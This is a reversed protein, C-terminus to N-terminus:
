RKRGIGFTLGVVGTPRANGDLVLAGTARAELGGLRVAPTIASVGLAAGEQTVGLAPGLLWRAPRYGSKEVLAATAEYPLRWDAEPPPAARHIGVEGFVFVAGERTEATASVGSVSIKVEPCVAQVTTGDPCPVEVLHEDLVEVEQVKWKVVERIKPRQGLAEEFKALQGNLSDLEGRMRAQSAEAAVKADLAEIATQQADLLALRRQTAIGQLRVVEVLLFGVAVIVVIAVLGIPSFVARWIRSM